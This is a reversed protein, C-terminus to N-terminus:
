RVRALFQLRHFWVAPNIRGKLFILARSGEGKPGYISIDFDRGQGSPVAQHIRRTLRTLSRGSIEQGRFGPDIQVRSMPHAQFNM